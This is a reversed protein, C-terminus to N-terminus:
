GQLIRTRIKQPCLISSNQFFEKVKTIKSSLNTEMKKEEIFITSGIM